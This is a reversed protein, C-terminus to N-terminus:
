TPGQKVYDNRGAGCMSCFNGDCGGCGCGFCHWLDARTQFLETATRRFIQEIDDGYSFRKKNLEISKGLDGNAHRETAAKWDCVMEILDLLSMDRIGNKWHEPHHRNEAYHHELAPRMGDLFARYEESGYTSGKLKPTFEAFVSLEPESLKSLDHLRARELLNRVVGYLLEQVRRIHALTEAQTEILEM